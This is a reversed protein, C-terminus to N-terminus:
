GPPTTPTPTLLDKLTADVKALTERAFQTVVPILKPNATLLQVLPTLEPPSSKRNMMTALMSNRSKKLQEQMAANDQRWQADVAENDKMAKVLHDNLQEELTPTATSM